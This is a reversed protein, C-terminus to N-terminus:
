MVKEWGKRMAAGRKEIERKREEKKRKARHKDRLWGRKREIKGDREREREREREIRSVTVGFLASVAAAIM